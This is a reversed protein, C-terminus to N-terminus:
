KGEKRGVAMLSGIFTLIMKDKGEVIDEPLLFITAGLKRALNIALKANETCKKADNAPDNVLSWDVFGKRIADILELFFQSTKLAPDKFNAMRSGKGSSAVVDNSWKIMQQESVPAGGGVLKLVTLVHHRMLQWVLALTLTENGNAIDVGGIGVLSFKLEKGLEVAYNSNEVQKIRHMNGEKNVQKWNVTGPDIKDMIRLLALGDRLDEFLSQIFPEIGLSNIWLQFARAERSGTEPFDLNKLEEEKLIELGPITNFLNAVFAMNLKPNGAVIDRAKVFKACNIKAANKLVGEARKNVDKEKLPALDCKSKDLQNLLITYAESDKIDSSFNAIRKDSGANKLHHNVWRILIKEPPLNLFTKIDEGPELLRYLEPHAKLNIQSMLGIRIVQWVVGLVLHETMAWIDEAGINVISCGIAKASNVVLNLNEIAPFQGLGDKLNVVRMDITDEVSHNILKCLLRGDRCAPFLGKDEKIPLLKSLSADSGLCENVHAVFAETEEKSYTRKIDEM